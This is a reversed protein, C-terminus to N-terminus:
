KSHEKGHNKRWHAMYAAKRGSKYYKTMDVTRMGGDCNCTCVYNSCGCTCEGTKKRGNPRDGGGKGASSTDHLPATRFPNNGPNGEARESLKTLGAEMAEMIEELEFGEFLLARVMPHEELFAAVEEDTWADEDEIGEIRGLAEQLEQALAM